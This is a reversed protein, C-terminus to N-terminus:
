VSEQPTFDSICFDSQIACIGIQGGFIQVNQKQKVAILSIQKDSTENNSSAWLSSSFCKREPAYEKYIEPPRLDWTDLCAQSHSM